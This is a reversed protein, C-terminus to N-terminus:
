ILGVRQFNATAEPDNPNRDPHREFALKRYASVIESATATKEVGLEKYYCFDSQSSAM